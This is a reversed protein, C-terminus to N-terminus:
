IGSSLDVDRPLWLSADAKRVTVAGFRITDTFNTLGTEPSPALLDERVRIIRLDDADIWAVGQRFILINRGQVKIEAPFKVKGPIQAFAVVFAEHKDVAV